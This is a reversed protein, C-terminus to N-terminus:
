FPMDLEDGCTIDIQDTLGVRRNLDISVDCLEQTLDIGTVHCGYTRALVRAPGGLGSGVDLVLDDSTIAAADALAITAMRGLTHFEEAPSLADPDLADPDNGTAILAALVAEQLNGRTYHQQVSDSSM